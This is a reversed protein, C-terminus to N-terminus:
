VAMKFKLNFFSHNSDYVIGNNLAKCLLLGAPYEPDSRPLQSSPCVWLRYPGPDGPVFCKVMFASGNLGGGPRWLKNAFRHAMDENVPMLGAPEKSRQRRAIAGQFSFM